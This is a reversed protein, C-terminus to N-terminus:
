LVTSGTSSSIADVTWPTIITAHHIRFPHKGGCKSCYADQSHCQFQSHGWKLCNGCQPTPRSDKWVYARKRTGAFDITTNLLTKGIAGDDSDRVEVLLLGTYDLEKGRPIIWKPEGIFHVDKWAPHRKIDKAYVSMPVKEGNPYITPVGYFKFSSSTARNLYAIEEDNDFSDDHAVAKRLLITSNKDLPRDITIILDNRDTFRARAINFPIDSSKEVVSRIKMGIADTLFKGHLNDLTGFSGSTARLHLECPNTGRNTPKFDKRKVQQWTSWDKTNSQKPSTQEVIPFRSERHQPQVPGTYKAKTAQAFSKTLSVRQALPADPFKKNVIDAAKFLTDHRAQKEKDPPPSSDKQNSTSTPQSTDYHGLFSPAGQPPPIYPPLPINRTNNRRTVPRSPLVNGNKDLQTPEQYWKRSDLNANDRKDEDLNANDRKDEDMRRANEAFQESQKKFETTERNAEDEMHSDNNTSPFLRQRDIFDRENQSLDVFTIPLKSPREGPPGQKVEITINPLMTGAEEVMKKIFLLFLHLSFHNRNSEQLLVLSQKAVWNFYDDHDTNIPAFFSYGDHKVVKLPPANVTENLKDFDTELSFERTRSKSSGQGTAKDQQEKQFQEYLERLQHSQFDPTGGTLTIALLK